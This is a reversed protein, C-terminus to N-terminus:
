PHTIHNLHYNKERLREIFTLTSTPTHTSIKVSYRAFEEFIM